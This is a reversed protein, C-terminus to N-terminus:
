YGMDELIEVASRIMDVCTTKFLNKSRAQQLGDGKSIDIGLVKDFKGLLQNTLLGDGCGVDVISNVCSPIMNITETIRSWELESPKQRQWVGPQEYYQHYTDTDIM